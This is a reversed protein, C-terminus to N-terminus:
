KNWLKILSNLRNKYESSPLCVKTQSVIRSKTRIFERQKYVKCLAKYDYSPKSMQPCRSAPAGVQYMQVGIYNGAPAYNCTYLHAVKYVSNPVAYAVFGCGIKSTEAWVM